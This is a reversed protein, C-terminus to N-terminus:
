AVPASHAHGQIAVASILSATGNNAPTITLRVYRKSGRYGIKFVENDDSQIFSAGAETGNLQADAVAANDSLASNDGDEILTTFEAGADGLSGTAIAFMLSDFGKTDIIESVLPTNGAESVPSIARSIKLDNYLDRLM